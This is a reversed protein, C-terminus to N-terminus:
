AVLGPQLEHWLSGHTISIVLVVHECRYGFAETGSAEIGLYEGVYKLVAHSKIKHIAKSHMYVAHAFARACGARLILWLFAPVELKAASGQQGCSVM